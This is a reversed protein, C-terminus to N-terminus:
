KSESGSSLLGGFFIRKIEDEELMGFAGRCGERSGGRLKRMDRLLSEWDDRKSAREGGRRAMRTAWALQESRDEASLIFWGMTAPVGWRSLTEASELHVDLADLLLSLSPASLPLFFTHLEAPKPPPSSPTPRLFQALALLTTEGEGDEHDEPGFEWAPLTEFIASMEEWRDIKQSGYLLALALRAVEEDKKLIREHVPLTAKSANFVQAALELSASSLLWNQIHRSPLQTDPKGTRESRALLVYLYPLLLHKILHVVSDPTAFHLYAASAEEPTATRWRSLTWSDDLIPQNSDAHESADVRADYVLRSLLSLDEGLSDLSPM